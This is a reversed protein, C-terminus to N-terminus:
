VLEKIVNILKKSEFPKNIVLNAGNKLAKQTMKEQGFASVVVFPVNKDQSRIEQLLTLGDMEPMQIDSIIIDYSNKKFLNIASRGSKACTVELMHNKLFLGVMKHMHLDDDVFLVKKM